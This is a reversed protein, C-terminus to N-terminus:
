AETTALFKPSWVFVFSMPDFSIEMQCVSLTGIFALGPPGIGLFATSKQLNEMREIRFAGLLFFQTYTINIGVIRKTIYVTILAVNM